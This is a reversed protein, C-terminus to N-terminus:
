NWGIQKYKYMGIAVHASKARCHLNVNRWIIEEPGTQFAKALLPLGSLFLAPLALVLTGANINGM